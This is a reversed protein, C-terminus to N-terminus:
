RIHLMEVRYTQIDFGVAKVATKLMASCEWRSALKIAISLAPEVFRADDVREFGAFRKLAKARQSLFKVGVNNQAPVQYNRDRASVGIRDTDGRDTAILLARPNALRM